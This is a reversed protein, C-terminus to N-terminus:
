EQPPQRQLMENMQRIIEETQRPDSGAAPALSPDILALRAEAQEQTYPLAPADSEKLENLVWDFKTKAEDLKGQEVLIRGQHYGAIPAISRNVARLAELQELAEGYASEAEFSYSLGELAAWRITEDESAELAAQYAARASEFEGQAYLAKGEGIRAWAAAATKAHSDAVNAYATSLDAPEDADEELVAALAEGAKANQGHTFTAWGIGVAAVLLVGGAMMGLPKLNDALWDKAVVAQAIAKEEVLEADRGRQAAKRAAKAAQQAALRQGATLPAQDENEAPDQAM